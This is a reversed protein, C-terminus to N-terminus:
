IIPPRAHWCAYSKARRQRRPWRSRPAGAASTKRRSADDGVGQAAAGSSGGGGSHRRWQGGAASGSGLRWRISRGGFEDAHRCSPCSIAASVPPTLLYFLLVFLGLAIWPGLDDLTSGPQRHTIRAKAVSSDTVFRIIDDVGARIGGGFDGTKFRRWRMTIIIKSLADTLELGYGVRSGCRAENRSSFCSAMTKENGLAWARFLLSAYPEIEDGELSKVTAVVLQIGSQSSRPLAKPIINTAVAPPINASDM